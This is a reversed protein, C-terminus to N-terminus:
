LDIALYAITILMSALVLLAATTLQTTELYSVGIVMMLTALVGIGGLVKLQLGKDTRVSADAMDAPPEPDGPIFSVM